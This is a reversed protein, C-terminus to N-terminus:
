PGSHIYTYREPVFEGVPEPGWHEPDHHITYVAPQFCDGKEFPIGFITTPETCERVRGSYFVLQDKVSFKNIEYVVNVPVKRNTKQSLLDM